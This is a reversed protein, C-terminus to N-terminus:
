YKCVNSRELGYQIFFYFPVCTYINKYDNEAIQTNKANLFHKKLGQPDLPARDSM